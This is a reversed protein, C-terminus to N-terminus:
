DVSTWSYGALFEHRGIIGDVADRDAQTWEVLGRATQPSPFVVSACADLYDEGAEVGLFGCARALEAQPAAVLSEHRITLVSAAGGAVVVEDITRASRGFNDIADRITLGDKSVVVRRAICDYPNRTVHLVRVPARVLRALTGLETPDRELRGRTRGGM